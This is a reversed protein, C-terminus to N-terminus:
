FDGAFDGGGTFGGAAEGGGYGGGYGGGVYHGGGDLAAGLAVGGVLGATAGIAVGAAVDGGYYGPGYGYPQGVVVPGGAVYGPGGVYGPGYGQTVYVPEEVVVTRCCLYWILCCLLLTGVAVGVWVWPSIHRRYVYVAQPVSTPNSDCSCTNVAANQVPCAASKPCCCAQRVGGSLFPFCYKGPMGKYATNCEASDNNQANACRRCQTDTPFLTALPTATTTTSTVPTSTTTTTTAPTNTTATQAFGTSSIALAVLGATLIRRLMACVSTFHLILLISTLFLSKCM